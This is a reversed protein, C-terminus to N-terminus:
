AVGESFILITTLSFTHQSLDSGRYGALKALEHSRILPSETM